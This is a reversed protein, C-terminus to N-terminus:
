FARGGQTGEAAGGGQPPYSQHFYRHRRRAGYFRCLYAFDSASSLAAASASSSHAASVSSSRLSFTRGRESCSGFHSRREYFRLCTAFARARLRRSSSTRASAAASLSSSASAESLDLKAATRIEGAGQPRPHM